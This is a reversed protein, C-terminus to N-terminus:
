VRFGICGSPQHMEAYEQGKVRPKHCFSGVKYVSWRPGDWNRNRHATYLNAVSMKPKDKVM